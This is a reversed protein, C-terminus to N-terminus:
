GVSRRRLTRGVLFLAIVIAVGVLAGWVNTPEIRGPPDLIGAVPPSSSVAAPPSTPVVSAGPTPAGTSPLGAVLQTTIDLYANGYTKSPEIQSNESFENWSIIGLVDPDTAMAGDWAARYTAGDRRPVISTGGVLRADFGPAAPAIWRGFDARVAAALDDLRRQYRPTSLPDPSSWYYADGDFYQARPAYADASRESGLLLAREPAGVATRVLQLQSPTYGWTGSWVITPLGFVDFPSDDGYTDVFWALDSAVVNPDLPLRDFDLGQYLLILKMGVKSAEDVLIALADDLRQEHKWSVILGDIGAARAWALHQAIVTRDRSDYTGLTPLDTKARRWSSTAYGIYYYAFVLPRVGAAPAASSVPSSAAPMDPPPPSAAALTALCIALALGARATRHRPRRARNESPDAVRPGPTQPSSRAIAAAGASGLV